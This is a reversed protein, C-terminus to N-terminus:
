KFCEEVIQVDQQGFVGGSTKDVLCALVATTEKGPAAVPVCLLSTPSFLGTSSVSSYESQDCSPFSASNSTLKNSQKSNEKHNSEIPPMSSTVGKTLVNHPPKSCSPVSSEEGIDDCSGKQTLDDRAAAPPQPSRHNNHAAATTTRPAGASQCQGGSWRYGCLDVSMDRSLVRTRASGMTADVSRASGNRTNKLSKREVSGAPDVSVRRVSTLRDSDQILGLLRWLDERHSPEIDELTMPRRTTLATSFSNNSM